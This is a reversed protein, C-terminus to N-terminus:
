SGDGKRDFCAQCLDDGLVGFVKCNRTKCGGWSEVPLRVPRWIRAVVKEGDNRKAMVVGLGNTNPGNAPVSTTEIATGTKEPEAEQTEAPLM